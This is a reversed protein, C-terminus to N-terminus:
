GDLWAISRPARDAPQAELASAAYARLSDLMRYTDDGDAVVLSREVLRPSCTSRIPIWDTVPSSSPPRCRSGGPSSARGAFSSRNIRRSSISAGRSPPASHNSVASAPGGPVASSRSGITSGNSSRRRHCSRPGRPRSSSPSRCVTSAQCIAAVAPANSADLEFDRRAARAREVFLTVADSDRVEEFRADHHPVGLPPVPWVVEGAIGLAERSTALIHLSPCRRLLRHAVSACADLLHECTDLVLLGPRHGIHLTVGELPDPSSTVGLAALSRSRFSPRTLSTASSSWGRPITNRKPTLSPSRSGPRARGEPDPSRSWGTTCCRARAGRWRARAASSVRPRRPCRRTVVRM